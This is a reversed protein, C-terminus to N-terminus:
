FLTGLHWHGGQYLFCNMPNQSQNAFVQPEEATATKAEILQASVASTRLSSAFKIYQLEDQTLQRDAQWISV